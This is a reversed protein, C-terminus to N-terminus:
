NNMHVIDDEVWLSICRNANAKDDIDERSVWPPFTRKNAGASWLTYTQYPAPSYYYFENWWGDLVTIADLVYAAGQGNPNTTYIEMEENDSRLPSSATNDGITIGYFTTKYNVSCMNELNAMWRACVAQSPISAVRALDQKRDSRSYNCVDSWSMLRGLFPDHPQANNGTWQKLRVMRSAVDPEMDLMFLYRPLLFSMLGFKFVKTDRWSASRSENMSGAATSTSFNEFGRAFRQQRSPPNRFRSNSSNSSQAKRKLEESIAQVTKDFEDPFPFRCDVPQAKCAARVQEWAQGESTEGINTWNWLARNEQDNEDQFGYGDVKIYINRSGHLAVPPYTGFAAYYGSLCNELRQLRAITVNRNTQDSGISSLRFTITMLTVLVVVVILMEVLTFGKKM